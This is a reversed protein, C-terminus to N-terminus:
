LCVALSVSLTLALYVNWRQRDGSVDYGFVETTKSSAIGSLTVPITTEPMTPAASPEISPSQTPEATPQMTPPATPANSPSTTPVDTPSSTPSETDENYLVLYQVADYVTTQSDYGGSVLVIAAEDIGDDVFQWVALGYSGIGIEM